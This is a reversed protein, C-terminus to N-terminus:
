CDRLRHIERLVDEVPLADLCDSRKSGGCGDLYCPRCSKQLAVVRAYPNQWPGWTIESTPGFLVVVPKKLASALHASVSDVCILLESLDILAGLEKLSIQGGLNTVDLGEAIEQVMKMEFLDPGSTLIIRNGDKLLQKILDRFHSVPPCKFRWRSTPHILIFPANESLTKAKARAADAVHFYLERANPPPFIGIRRLVDLNKEVTHRLASCDKAIHTLMKAQWKGKPRFGARIKAGSALSAFVGRDGETLNIALDYGKKRISWLLAAEHKILSLFSGKKWNRDYGILRSIDPHGDLMPLAEKYIYVDIKAQPMAGKLARFVPATLLVDGLHRLKVVLIKKVDNLDPYGGYGM